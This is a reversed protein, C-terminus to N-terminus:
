LLYDVLKTLYMGDILIEIAEKWTDCYYGNDPCEDDLEPIYVREGDYHWVYDNDDIIRLLTELKKNKM